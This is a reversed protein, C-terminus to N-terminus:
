NLIMNDAPCTNDVHQWYPMVEEEELIEGEEVDEDFDDSLSDQFVLIDELNLIMNDVHQWYPTMM